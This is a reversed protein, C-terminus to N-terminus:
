TEGGRVTRRRLRTFGALELERISLLPGGTQSCGRGAAAKYLSPLPQTIHPPPPPPPPTTVFSTKKIIVLKETSHGTLFWFNDDIDSVLLLILNVAGGQLGYM